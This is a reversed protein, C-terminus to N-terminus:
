ETDDDTSFIKEKSFKTTIQNRLFAYVVDFTPQVHSTKGSMPTLKTDFDEKWSENLVPLLCVTSYYFRNFSIFIDQESM